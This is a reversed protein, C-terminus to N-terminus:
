LSLSLPSCRIRVNISGFSSVRIGNVRLVDGLTRHYLEGRTLATHQCGVAVSEWVVNSFVNGSSSQLSANASIFFYNLDHTHVHIPHPCCVPPHLLLWFLWEPRWHSCVSHTRDTLNRWLVTWSETQESSVRYIARPSREAADRTRIYNENMRRGTNWRQRRRIDKKALTSLLSVDRQQNKM